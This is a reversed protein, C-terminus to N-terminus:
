STKSLNYQFIGELTPRKQDLMRRQIKEEGETYLRAPSGFPDRASNPLQTLKAIAARPQQPGNRVPLSLHPGGANM